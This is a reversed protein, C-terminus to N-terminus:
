KAGTPVLRKLEEFWNVVVVLTRPASEPPVRAMLFRGDAAVDYSPGPYVFDYDGRFLVSPTGAVFAGATAVPVAMMRAGNAYYLERGNRSWVPSHGGDSSVQWREGPEPFAQVYVESRGSVNSAYALWRGDPSLAPHEEVAPTSLYVSPKGNGELPLTWIDENTESHNEVYILTKGDPTLAHPTKDYATDIVIREQGTGDATRIAINFWPHEFGYLIHRGDMTWLPAFDSTPSAAVSTMTRRVLDFAWVDQFEERATTLAIKRGDPSIRPHKYYNRPLPLPQANGRRDVWLLSSEQLLTSRPAYVMVGTESVGLISYGNPKDVFADELVRTTSGTVELRGVDFPVAMLGEERMFIIHGTPLYRGFTAGQLIEKQEGTALTLAMLRAKSLPTSFATFLLTKGGPLLQPWWHGLEGKEHDPETLKEPTGGDSSVRWLGQAYTPTFFIAGDAGWAGGGWDARCIALPSGGEVAVKMLRSSADATFALWKGDPSFFPNTANSTGPVPKADLQDLRRLFLQPEGDRLGIYALLSGDPSIAVPANTNATLWLRENPPLTIAFRMPAVLSSDRPSRPWWGMTLAAVGLIGALAWPLARRWLPQVPLSLSPETKAAAEPHAIADEIAIRAEGIDRLRRKRDRELCRPLLPRVQLPTAAPLAALDIGSKLVAAL